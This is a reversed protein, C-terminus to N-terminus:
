WGHNSCGGEKEGIYEYPRKGKDELVEMTKERKEKQLKNWGEILLYLASSLTKRLTETQVYAVCLIFVKLM